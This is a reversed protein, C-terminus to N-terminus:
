VPRVDERGRIGVCNHTHIHEGIKIDQTAKGIIEGYKIVMEDKKINKLAIKHGFIIDNLAKLHEKKNSIEVYEGAKTDSLLTATNDKENILLAKIM